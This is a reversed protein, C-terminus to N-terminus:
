MHYDIVAGIYYVDGDKASRMFYDISDCCGSYMSLQIGYNDEGFYAVDRIASSADRGMFEDLSMALIKSCAKQTEEYKKRWYDARSVVTFTRAKADIAYGCPVPYSEMSELCQQMEADGMDRIYDVASGIINSGNDFYYSDACFYDRRQVPKKSLQLIVYHGM